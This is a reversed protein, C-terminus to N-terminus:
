QVIRGKRGTWEAKLTGKTVDFEGDGSFWAGELVFQKGAALDLQVTQEEGNIIADVDDLTLFYVEGAIMATGPEELYGVPGDAGLAVTRVPQGAQFTFEGPSEIVKGNVRVAIRGGIRQLAM